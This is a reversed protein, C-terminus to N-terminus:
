RWLQRELVFRPLSLYCCPCTFRTQDIPINPPSPYSIESRTVSTATKSVHRIQAIEKAELSTTAASTITPSAIPQVVFQSEQAALTGITEVGGQRQLSRDSGCAERNRAKCRKEAYLFSHRRHLNALILRSQIETPRFSSLDCNPSRYMKIASTSINVSVLLTLFHLLEPHRDPKFSDDAGASQTRTGTSRVAISIRVLQCIIDEVNNKADVHPITSAAALMDCDPDNFNNSDHRPRTSSAAWNAGSSQNEPSDLTWFLYNAPYALLVFTCLLHLSKEVQRRSSQTDSTALTAFHCDRKDGLSKIDIRRGIISSYDWHRWLWHGLPQFSRTAKPGM